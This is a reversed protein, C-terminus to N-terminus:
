LVSRAIQLANQRVFKDEFQSRKMFTTLGTELGEFVVMDNEEDIGLIQCREGLYEIFLANQM